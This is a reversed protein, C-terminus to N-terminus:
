LTPRYEGFEDRMAACVEGMSGHDKLAQRLVPLLNETGRAAQRIEELRRRVLEHDRDAKFTKLRDLQERESEPDVRLTDPVELSDDIFKNVGVVVDQGIRYREDHNDVCIIEPAM